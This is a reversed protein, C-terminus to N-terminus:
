SAPVLSARWARLGELRSEDDRLPCSLCYEGERGAWKYARCCAAGKLGFWPGGPADFVFLDPRRRGLRPSAAITPRGVRGRARDPYESLGAEALEYAIQGAAALATM